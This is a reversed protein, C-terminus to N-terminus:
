ILIVTHAIVRDPPREPISGRADLWQAAAARASEPVPAVRVYDAPALAIPASTASPDREELAFTGCCDGRPGQWRTQSALHCCGRERYEWSWVKACLEPRGVAMFLVVATALGAFFGIRRLWRPM